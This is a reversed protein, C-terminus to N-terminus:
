KCPTNRLDTSDGIQLSEVAEEEEEEEFYEWSGKM